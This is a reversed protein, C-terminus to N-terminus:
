ARVKELETWVAKGDPWRVDWRRGHRKCELTAVLWVPRITLAPGCLKCGCPAKMLLNRVSNGM